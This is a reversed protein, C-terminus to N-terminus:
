NEFINKVAGVLTVPDIPKKFTHIAGFDKAHQLYEGSHLTNSGGSVAIIKITPFQKKLSLITAIGDQEPMFIDTIILDTPNERYIKAGIKGNDAEVVSYGANELVKKILLRGTREDDIVLIKEM